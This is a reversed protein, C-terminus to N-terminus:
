NLPRVRIEHTEERWKGSRPHRWKGVALVRFLGQPSVEFFLSKFGRGLCEHKNDQARLLRGENDVWYEIDSSWTAQLEGSILKAGEIRQLRLRQQGSTGSTIEFRHLQSVPDRDISSARLDAEIRKLAERAGLEQHLRQQDSRQVSHVVDAATYTIGLVAVILSASVSLEVITTGTENTDM